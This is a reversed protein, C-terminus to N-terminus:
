NSTSTDTPAKGGLIHGVSDNYRGFRGLLSKNKSKEDQIKNQYKDFEIEAQKYAQKQSYILRKLEMNISDSINAYKLSDSYVKKPDFPLSTIVTDGSAGLIIKGTEKKQSEKIKAVEIKLSDIKADQQTNRTQTSCGTM